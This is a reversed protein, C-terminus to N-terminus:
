WLHNFVTTQWKSGSSWLLTLFSIKFPRMNRGPASAAPLPADVEDPPAELTMEGQSPVELSPIAQMLSAQTQQLLREMEVVDPQAEQEEEEEM